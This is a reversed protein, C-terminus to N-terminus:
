SGTCAADETPATPAIRYARAPRARRTTLRRSLAMDSMMDISMLLLGVLGPVGLGAVVAEGGTPHTLIWGMLGSALATLCFLLAGATRFAWGIAALEEATARRRM